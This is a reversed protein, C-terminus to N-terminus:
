AAQTDPLRRVRRELAIADHVHTQEIGPYLNAIEEDGLGQEDSLAWITATPLRTRRICPEGAYVWPSIATHQSPRVLNPGSVARLEPPPPGDISDAVAILDFVDLLGLMTGFPTAGSAADTTEDGVFFSGDISRFPQEPDVEGSELGRRVGLVRKSGRAPDFRHSRLWAFLRVLVLDRYSWQKPTEDNFDPVFVRKNAWDHLTRQPIGALHSARTYTYRGVPRRLARKVARLEEATLDPM